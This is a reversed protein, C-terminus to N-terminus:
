PRVELVVRYEIDYCGRGRPNGGASYGTFLVRKGEYVPPEVAYYVFGHISTIVARVNKDTLETPM